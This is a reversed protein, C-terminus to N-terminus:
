LVGKYILAVKGALDRFGQEAMYRKVSMSMPRWEAEGCDMYIALFLPEDTEPDHVLGISHVKYGRVNVLWLFFATFERLDVFNSDRLAIVTDRDLYDELLLLVEDTTLGQVKQYIERLSMSGWSVSEKRKLAFVM